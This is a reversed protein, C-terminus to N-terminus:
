EKALLDAFQEVVNLLSVLVEEGHSAFLPQLHVDGLNRLQEDVIGITVTRRGEGESAVAELETGYTRLGVTGTRHYGEVTSHGLGEDVELLADVGADRLELLLESARVVTGLEM